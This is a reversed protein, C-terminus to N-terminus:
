FRLLILKLIISYLWRDLERQHLRLSILMRITSIAIFRSGDVECGYLQYEIGNEKLFEQFEGVKGSNVIGEAISESGNM